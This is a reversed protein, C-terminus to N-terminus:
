RESAGCPSTKENTATTPKDYVRQGIPVKFGVRKTLICGVPCAQVAKDTAEIQTGAANKASNLGIRRKYGRNVFQFEHKGDLEKSARVCRACLICRNFDLLVNPHSADVPLKNFMYTHRSSLVGLRYGMAQLECSGSKECFMCFHNGEALLMEVLSKRLDKLEATDSEVVMGESVPMTCASQPRGNVMVTCVRCSGWPSIGPMACLNPIYLGASQAALLITQDSKGRVQVGDITFYFETQM